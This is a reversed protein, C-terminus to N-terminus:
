FPLKLTVMIRKDPKGDPSVQSTTYLNARGAGVKMGIGPDRCRIMVIPSRSSAINRAMTSGGAYWSM